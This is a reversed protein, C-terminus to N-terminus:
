FGFPLLATFLEAFPDTIPIAITSDLFPFVPSEFTNVTEGPVGLGRSPDAGSTLIDTFLPSSFVTAVFHNDDPDAFSTNSFLGFNTTPSSIFDTDSAPTIDDGGFGTNGSGFNSNGQNGSGVNGNGLNATGPMGNAVQGTPGSANGTQQGNGAGFLNQVLATAANTAGASAQSNGAGTLANIFQNHIPDTNNGSNTNGTGHRGFNIGPDPAGFAAIPAPNNPLITSQSGSKGQTGNTQSGAAGTSGRPDSLSQRFTSTVTNTGTGGGGTQTPNKPGTGGTGTDATAIPGGVALLMSATAAIAVLIRRQPKYGFIHKSM